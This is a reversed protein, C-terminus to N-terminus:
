QGRNLGALPQFFASCLAALEAAPIWWCRKCLSTRSLLARRFAVDGVGEPSVLVMAFLGLFSFFLHQVM